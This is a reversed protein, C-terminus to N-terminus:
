LWPIMYRDYLRDYAVLLLRTHLSRFLSIIIDNLSFRRIMIEEDAVRRGVRFGANIECGWAAERYARSM